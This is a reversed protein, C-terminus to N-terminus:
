PRGQAAALLHRFRISMDSRGYRAALWANTPWLARGLLRAADGPRDVLSLQYVFRLWNHRIDRMELITRDDCQRGIWWRRPSPPALRALAVRAEGLGLLDATLRLVLWTATAVRWARARGALGPWDVPASRAILAVDMLGRAWPHGMQHNIALHVAVQIVNDEPSLIRAPRGAIAISALRGRIGSVDVQSAHRLWQGPFAGWHLEVLGGGPTRSIMQIEGELQAQLAVPRAQKVWQQYGIAELSAQALPMEEATVWLDLDGMPRCDPAPYVSHALAAGKLLVPTVGAGALAQLVRELEREHLLADVVGHYHIRQLAECAEAPLAAMLGAERLRHYAYPGLGQAHLWGVLAGDPANEEVWARLAEEQSSALAWLFAVAGQPVPGSRQVPMHNDM